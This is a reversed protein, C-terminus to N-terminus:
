PTCGGASAPRTWFGEGLASELTRLRQDPTDHTAAMAEVAAGVHDSRVLAQRQPTLQAMIAAEGAAREREMRRMVDHVGIPAFGAQAAMTAGLLDAEREQERGFEALRIHAIWDPHVDTPAITDADNMYLDYAQQISTLSVHQLMVHAREHALIFAIESDSHDGTVECEFIFSSTSTAFAGDCGALVSVPSAPSVANLGAMIRNVRAIIASDRSLGIESGPSAISADYRQGCFDATILRAYLSLDSTQEDEPRRGCHFANALSVTAGRRAQEFLSQAPANVRLAALARETAAITQDVLRLREAIRDLASRDRAIAQDAVAAAQADSAVNLRARFDQVRQLHAQADRQETLAAERADRQRRLLCELQTRTAEVQQASPQASVNASQSGLALIAALLLAFRFRARMSM